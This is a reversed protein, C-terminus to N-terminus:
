LCVSASIRSKSKDPPPTKRQRLLLGEAYVSGGYDGSYSERVMAQLRMLIDTRQAQPPRLLNTHGPRSKDFCRGLDTGEEAFQDIYEQNIWLVIREYDGGSEHFIPQHLELPHILLLDGPELHYITGEVRYDVQGGLFFYVEYFGHHHVDVGAPKPERYHFIEFSQGRMQQRPDFRQIRRRM